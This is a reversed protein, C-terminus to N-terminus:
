ERERLVKLPNFDDLTTELGKELETKLEVPTKMKLNEDDSKFNNDLTIVRNTAELGQKFLTNDNYLKGWGERYFSYAIYFQTRADRKEPDAQALNERAARFNDARFLRVGENFKTQDIEYTGATVEAKTSIESLTKPEAAYLWFIFLAYAVSLMIGCIQIIKTQMNM